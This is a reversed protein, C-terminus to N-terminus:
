VEGMYNGYMVGGKIVYGKGGEDGRSEKVDGGSGM